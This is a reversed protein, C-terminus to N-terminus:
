CLPLYPKLGEQRLQMNLGAISFQDHYPICEVLHAIEVEEQVKLAPSEQKIGKRKTTVPAEHM